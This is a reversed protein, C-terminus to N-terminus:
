KAAVVAGSRREIRRAVPRLKIGTSGTLQRGTEKGPGTQRALNIM